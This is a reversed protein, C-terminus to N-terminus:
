VVDVTQFESSGILKVPSKLVRSRDIELCMKQTNKNVKAVTTLAESKNIISLTDNAANIIGNKDALLALHHMFIVLASTEFM